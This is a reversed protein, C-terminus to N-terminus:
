LHQIGSRQCSKLELLHKWGTPMTHPRWLALFGCSSLTTGNHTSYFHILIVAHQRWDIIKQCGVNNKGKLFGDYLFLFFPTALRFMGAESTHRGLGWVNKIPKM